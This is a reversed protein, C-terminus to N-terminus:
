TKSSARLEMFRCYSNTTKESAGKWDNNFAEEWAWEKADDPNEADVVTVFTQQIERTVRVEFKM